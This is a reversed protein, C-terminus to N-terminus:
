GLELAALFDLGCGEGAPYKPPRLQKTMPWNGGSGRWWILRPLEECATRAMRARSLVMQEMEASFERREVEAWAFSFIWSALSVLFSM